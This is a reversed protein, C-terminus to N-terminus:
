THEVAPMLYIGSFIFGKRRKGGAVDDLSPKDSDNNHKERESFQGMEELWAGM